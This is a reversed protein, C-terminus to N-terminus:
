SRGRPQWGRWGVARSGRLHAETFATDRLEAPSVVPVDHGLFAAFPQIDRPPFARRRDGVPSNWRLVNLIEGSLLM